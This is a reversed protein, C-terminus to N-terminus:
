SQGETFMQMFNSIIESQQQIVELAQELREDSPEM